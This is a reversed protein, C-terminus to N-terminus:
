IWMAETLALTEFEHMLVTFEFLFVLKSVQINHWIQVVIEICLLSWLIYHNIIQNQMVSIIQQM